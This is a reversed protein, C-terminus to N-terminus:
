LMPKISAFSDLFASFHLIEQALHALLKLRDPLRREPGGGDVPSRRSADLAIPRSSRRWRSGEGLLFPSVFAFPTRNARKPVSSIAKRVVQKSSRTATMFSHRMRSMVQGTSPLFWVSRSM